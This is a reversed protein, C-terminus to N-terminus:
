EFALDEVPAAEAEGDARDALAAEVMQRDELGVLQEEAAQTRKELQDLRRKVRSMAADFRDLRKRAGADRSNAPSASSQKLEDSLVVLESRLDTLDSGLQERLAIDFSEMQVALQQEDIGSHAGAGPLGISFSVGLLCVLVAIAVLYPQTRRSFYAKLLKEEHSTLGMQMASMKSLKRNGM